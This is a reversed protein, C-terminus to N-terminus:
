RLYSPSYWMRCLPELGLHHTLLLIRFDSELGDGNIFFYSGGISSDDGNATLSTLTDIAVDIGLKVENRLLAVEDNVNAIGEM